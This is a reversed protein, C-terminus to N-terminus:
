WKLSLNLPGCGCLWILNLLCILHMCQARNILNSDPNCKAMAVQLELKGNWNAIGVQLELMRNWNSVGALDGPKAGFVDVTEGLLMLDLSIWRSWNWNRYRRFRTQIWFSKPWFCNESKKQNIKHTDFSKSSTLKQVTITANQSFHPLNDAVKDQKTEKTKCPRYTTKTSLSYRSFVSYRICHITM